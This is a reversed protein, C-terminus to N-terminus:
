SPTTTTSSCWRRPRSACTATRSSSVIPSGGPEPVEGEHGVFVWGHHFIRDIEEEFIQPDTYVRDRVRDDLVLEDYRIPAGVTM